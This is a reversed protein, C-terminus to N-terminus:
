PSLFGTEFKRNSPAARLIARLTFARLPCLKGKRKGRGRSPLCMCAASAQVQSRWPQLNLSPRVRLRRAPAASHSRVLTELLARSSKRRRSLRQRVPANLPRARNRGAGVLHDFSDPSKRFQCKESMARHRVQTRLACRLPCRSFMGVVTGGQPVEFV